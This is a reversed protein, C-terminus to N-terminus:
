TQAVRDLSKLRLGVLWLSFVGVMYPRLRLWIFELVTAMHRHTSLQALTLVPAWSM